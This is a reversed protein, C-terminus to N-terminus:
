TAASLIVIGLAVLEEAIRCIQELSIGLEIAATRLTQLGDAHRFLRWQEPTIQVQRNQDPYASLDLPALVMQPQIYSSVSTSDESFTPPSYVTSMDSISSRNSSVSSYPQVSVNSDGASGSRSEALLSSIPLAILLRDSPPPQNEEFYIDGNEKALITEIVQSAERFAWNYLNRQSVYGLDLLALATAIESNHREGLALAVEQFAKQSIVGAQLLREELSVDPKVTGICLLQGHRFSFVVSSEDQKIVLLGTKRYSEIRQLITSLDFQDLSGIFTL